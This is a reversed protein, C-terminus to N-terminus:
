AHLLGGATRIVSANKMASYIDPNGVAWSSVSACAVSVRFPEASEPDLQVVLDREVCENLVFGVGRIFASAPPVLHGVLLSPADTIGTDAHYWRKCAPVTAVEVDSADAERHGLSLITGRFWSYRGSPLLSVGSRTFSVIEAHKAERECRYAEPVRFLGFRQIPFRGLGERLMVGRPVRGHWRILPKSEVVLRRGDSKVGRTSLKRPTAWAHAPFDEAGKLFWEILSSLRERVDIWRSPSPGWRSDPFLGAKLIDLTRGCDSRLSSATGTVLKLRRGDESCHERELGAVDTHPHNPNWIMRM